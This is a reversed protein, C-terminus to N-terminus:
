PLPPFAYTDLNQWSHSLADEGMAEEDKIPSFYCLMQRNARTAFLDIRPCGWRHIVQQALEKKLMWETHIIQNKRSLQDALVNRKGPIYKAKLEVGWEESLLLVRRTWYCLSASKTGGQKKLHAVVTSNDSMVIVTHTSLKKALIKFAHFVALMELVNIHLNKQKTTWTGSVQHRQTHAGWGELSADTYLLTAPPLSGVTVGKLINSSLTWWKLDAIVNNSPSIVINPSETPSWNRKLQWQMFRTRLRGGPVVKEMSALTGLIKEWMHATQDIGHLFTEIRSRLTTVREPSPCILARKTDIQLGLYQILQVPHLESKEVNVVVGLANLFNLILQLQKKCTEKCAAIILWDDLYRLLRIGRIHAWESVLNFVKTFVQPATALGFCLARFQYIKGGLCFRLYRRSSQHMPIQFYADKLDISVMFDGQRVSRIVSATTEMKFKTIQLYDNLPALNIVPRWGGQKKPVLFVRSYFGPDRSKVIEIAGKEVMSGIEEKLLPLTGSRRISPALDM